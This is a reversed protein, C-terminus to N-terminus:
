SHSSSWTMWTRSWNRKRSFFLVMVEADQTAKSILLHSSLLLTCGGNISCSSQVLCQALCKVYTRKTFYDECCDWSALLVNVSDIALQQHWFSQPTMRSDERQGKEGIWWFIKKARSEFFIHLISRVLEVEVVRIGGVQRSWQLLRSVLTGPEMEDMRWWCGSCDNLFLLDPWIEGRILVRWYKNNTM